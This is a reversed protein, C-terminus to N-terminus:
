EAAEKNIRLWETATRGAKEETWPVYDAYPLPVDTPESLEITLMRPTEDKHCKMAIDEAQRESEAVIFMPFSVEVKYMRRM